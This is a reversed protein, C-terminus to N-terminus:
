SGMALKELFVGFKKSPISVQLNDAIQQLVKGRETTRAKLRYSETILVERVFAAFAVNQDKYWEMASSFTFLIFYLQLHVM